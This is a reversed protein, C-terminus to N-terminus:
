TVSGFLTLRPRRQFRRTMETLQANLPSYPRLAVFSLGALSGKSFSPSSSCTYAMARCTAAVSARLPRTSTAVSSFDRTAAARLLFSNIEEARGDRGLLTTTGIVFGRPSSWFRRVLESDTKDSEFRDSDGFMLNRSSLNTRCWRCLSRNRSNLLVGAVRSSNVPGGPEPFVM